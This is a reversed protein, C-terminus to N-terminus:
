GLLLALIERFVELYRVLQGCLYERFLITVVTGGSLFPGYPMTHEDKLLVLPIGYVLGFFPALVFALVAVKWGMFAGVMGMLKVDGIGMAEQRFVLAGGIAFVLVLGGGVIAGIVSGILGDLPGIGTLDQFTHYPAGGVHLGPLLVGALLGGLIGFVSIEDPIILYELDVGSAAVLLAIVLGMVVVHGPNVGAVASQRIYLVLFLLGTLGEVLPYRWSISDGCYRCKGGLLLYSVLPINDWGTLAQGCKPCHSGVPRSISQGRPLRWICVNLFSGVTLGLLLAFAAMVVNQPAIALPYV